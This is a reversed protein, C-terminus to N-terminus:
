VQSPLWLVGFLQHLRSPLDVQHPKLMYIRFSTSHRSVEKAWQIFEERNLSEQDALLKEAEASTDKNMVNCVNALPRLTAMPVHLSDRSPLASSPPLLRQALPELETIVRRQQMTFSKPHPYRIRCLVDIVDDQTPVGTPSEPRALASFVFDMKATASRTRITPEQGFAASQSFMHDSSKTILGVSRILADRTLPVGKAFPFCAHSRLLLFITESAAAVEEALGTHLNVLKAYVVEIPVEGTAKTSIEQLLHRLAELKEPTFAASQGDDAGSTM